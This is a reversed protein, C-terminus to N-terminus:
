KVEISRNERNFYVEKTKGEYTVKLIIKNKEGGEYAEIYVAEGHLPASYRGINEIGFVDNILHTIIEFHSVAIVHPTAEQSPHHEFWRILYECTRYLRKKKSEHPEIVESGISHMPHTYHDKAILEGNGGLEKSRKIFADFDLMDSMRLQDISRKPKNELNAGQAVFDLTGKARAQPSHILYIDDEDNATGEKRLKKGIEPAREAGESTLDHGTNKYLSKEHRLLTVKFLFKPEKEKSLQISPEKPFEM